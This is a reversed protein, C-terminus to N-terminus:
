VVTFTWDNIPAIMAVPTPTAFEIKTTTKASSRRSKPNDALVAAIVPAEARNLGTKIVLIAIIQPIIGMASPNPSPPSRVAGKPRATMPPNIHEVM